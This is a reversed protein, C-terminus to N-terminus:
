IVSMTIVRLRLSFLTYHQFGSRTYSYSTNYYNMRDWVREEWGAQNYELKGECCHLRSHLECNQGSLQFVESKLQLTSTMSAVLLDPVRLRLCGIYQLSPCVYLSRLLVERSKVSRTIHGLFFANLVFNQTSNAVLDILILPKCHNTCWLFVSISSIPSFVTSYPYTCNPRLVSSECFHTEESGSVRSTVM